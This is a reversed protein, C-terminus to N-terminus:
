VRWPGRMARRRMRNAQEDDLFQEAVPDWTVKRKMRVAVDALNCLTTAAHGAEVPAVPKRRSKVCELFNGLHNNSHYLHVDDPKITTKLLSAPEAKVKGGSCHIWGEEGRFCVGQPYPNNNSTYKVTIGDALRYDVQWSIPTDNIGAKPFVATGEVAGATAQLFRRRRIPLNAM